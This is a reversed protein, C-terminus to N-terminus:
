ILWQIAFLLVMVVAMLGLIWAGCGMAHKVIPAMAEHRTAAYVLSVAVVLPLAYWVHYLEVAGTLMVDM